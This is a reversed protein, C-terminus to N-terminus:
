PLQPYRKPEWRYEALGVQEPVVQLPIALGAQNYAAVAAPVTELALINQEGGWM